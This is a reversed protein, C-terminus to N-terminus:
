GYGVVVVEELARTDAALTVQLASQVGPRIEQATYGVFSFVLTVDDNPISLSFRGEVDTSTGSTTGKIAINVGPLGAGTEDKVVGTLTRDITRGLSALANAPEIIQIDAAAREMKKLVVKNRILKYSIHDPSFITELVESLPRNEMRLTVKRDVPLLQVSYVFKVRTSAELTSLVERIQKQEVRISVRQTLLEQASTTHAYSYATAIFM